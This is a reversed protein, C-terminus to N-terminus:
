GEGGLPRPLRENHAIFKVIMEENVQDPTASSFSLDSGVMNM